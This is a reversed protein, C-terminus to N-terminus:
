CLCFLFNMTCYLLQRRAVLTLGYRIGSYCIKKIEIKGASFTIHMIKKVIRQTRKCLITSKTYTMGFKWYWKETFCVKCVSITWIFVHTVTVTLGRVTWPSYCNVPLWMIKSHLIYTNMCPAWLIPYDVAMVVMVRVVQHMLNKTFVVWDSYFIQTHCLIAYNCFSCFALSLVNALKEESIDTWQVNSRGV